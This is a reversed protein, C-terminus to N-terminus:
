TLPSRTSASAASILRSHAIKAARLRATPGLIFRHQNVTKGNTIGGTVSLDDSEHRQGLCPAPPKRCLHRSILRPSPGRYAPQVMSNALPARGTQLMKKGHFSDEGIRRSLTRLPYTMSLAAVLRGTTRMTSSSNRSRIFAASIISPVPKSTTSAAFASWAIAM